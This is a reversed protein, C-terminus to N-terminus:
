SELKLELQLELKLELMSELQLELNLELTNSDTARSLASLSHRDCRSVIPAALAKDEMVNFIAVVPIVEERM